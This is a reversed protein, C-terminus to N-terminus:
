RSYLEVILQENVQTDIEERSPYRTISGSLETPNMEVWLPLTRQPRTESLEKFIESSRSTERVSVVEGAKVQYSPINVKKSGVTFHGHRVLQRAQNRSEALGLRYVINDLRRELIVLLNTGTVGKQRDAKAFYLRFQKELVGYTRRAKQKERLQLGYESAKKPRAHGHQGPVFSRRTFPCKDSYCKDGKLFLKTGERRCQRCVAETYRAM